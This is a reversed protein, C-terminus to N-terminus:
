VLRSYSKGSGSVGTLCIFIGLPFNVDINKLNNANCGLLQIKRNGTVDRRKEPLPIQLDGKLYKATLYNLGVSNLFSLKELIAKKLPEVIIKKEKDLQLNQFFQEADEVTM